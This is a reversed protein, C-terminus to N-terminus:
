LTFLEQGSSSDWVKVGDKGISALRKGDASWAVSNVQSIHGKFTLLEQGSSSDWVKVTHDYSASALRKDVPSWAVSFVAGAHGKFSLLEKGSSSDWVKVTDDWSGSASALRKNDPSWAVSHVTASHGKLSLLEKGSSSDWVKVTHDASASALHKNDPSWAVSLVGGTHGKMTRNLRESWSLLHGWEWGRVEVPQSVLIEEARVFDREELAQEARPIAQSYLGMRLQYIKAATEDRLERNAKEKAATEAVLSANASELDRNSRSLDSNLRRQTEANITQVVVVWLVAGAALTGTAALAPNKKAWRWLREKWSLRRARIPEGDLWRRLDEALDGCGAYRRAPEKELCKLCITELDRPLQPRFRCPSPAAQHQHLYLFQAVNSGEFPRQGALLEFLMVGLSYQDSAAEPKGICQEPAMYAPTGLIRGDQSRNSEGEDRSALGFDTLAPEGREDLLVNAPKVDRHVVGRQHAYALAEALKRVIQVAERGPLTKGEPLDALRAELSSGQIFDAVIFHHDGDQGADHVAVIHPHRLNAAARAERQFRRVHEPSHLFEPRVVKLAVPRDLHPDHALYVRGFAGEGLCRQLRFGGLTAPM